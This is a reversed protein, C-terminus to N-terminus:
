TKLQFILYLISTVHLVEINKRDFSSQDRHNCLRCGGNTESMTLDLLSVEQCFGEYTSPECQIYGVIGRLRLEQRICFKRNILM